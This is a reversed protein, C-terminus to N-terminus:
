KKPHTIFDAIDREFQYIDNAEDKLSMAMDDIDKQRARRRAPTGSKKM